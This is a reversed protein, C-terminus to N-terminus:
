LCKTIHEGVLEYQEERYEYHDDECIRWMYLDKSRIQCNWTHGWKTIGSIVGEFEEGIREQM